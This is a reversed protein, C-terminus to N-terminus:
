SYHTNVTEPMAQYRGRENIIWCTSQAIWWKDAEGSKQQRKM